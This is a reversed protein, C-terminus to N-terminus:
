NSEGNSPVAAEYENAESQIHLNISENIGPVEVAHDRRYRSFVNFHVVAAVLFNSNTYFHALPPPRLPM